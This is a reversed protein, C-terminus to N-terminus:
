GEVRIAFVEFDNFLECMRIHDLGRNSPTSTSVKLADDFGPFNLCGRNDAGTVTVGVLLLVGGEVV